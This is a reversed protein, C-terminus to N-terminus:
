PLQRQRSAAQESELGTNVSERVVVQRRLDEVHTDLDALEQRLRVVKEESQQLTTRVSGIAKTEHQLKSSSEASATQIATLRDHVKTPVVACRADVIRLSRLTGLETQAGDGQSGPISTKTIMCDSPGASDVVEVHAEDESDAVETVMCGSSEDMIETRDEDGISLVAEALTATEVDKTVTAPVDSSSM